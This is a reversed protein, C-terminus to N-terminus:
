HGGTLKQIIWTGITTAIAGLLVIFASRQLTKNSVMQREQLERQSGAWEINRRLNRVDEQNDINVGLDRFVRKLADDPHPM